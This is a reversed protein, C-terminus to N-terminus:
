ETKEPASAATPRKWVVLFTSGPYHWSLDGRVTFWLGHERAFAAAAQAVNDDWHYPQSVFLAPKRDVLWLSAHDTGPPWCNGTLHQCAGILRYICPVGRSESAHYTEAFLQKRPVNAAEGFARLTAGCWDHNSALGAVRRIQVTPPNNGWFRSKMRDKEPPISAPRAQRVGSAAAVDDRDDGAFRPARSHEPKKSGVELFSPSKAEGDHTGALNYKYCGRGCKM